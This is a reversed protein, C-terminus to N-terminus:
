DYSILEYEVGDHDEFYFRRGPEYDGHNHPTYGLDTVRAEMADVDEVVVGIHNLGGLTDYTDGQSQKPGKSYVAIYQDDNGVHATTGGGKKKKKWRVHWGFLDILLQASRDVDSVTINAHELMAKTM